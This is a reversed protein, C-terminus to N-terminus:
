VDEAAKTRMTDDRKWALLLIAVMSITTANCAIFFWDGGTAVVKQGSSWLGMRGGTVLIAIMGAACVSFALVRFYTEPRRLCIATGIAFMLVSALAIIALGTWDGISIAFAGLWAAAAFAGGGFRSIVGNRSLSNAATGTVPQAEVWTGDEVRMQKIRRGAWVCIPLWVCFFALMMLAPKFPSGGLVNVGLQYLVLIVGISLVLLGFGALLVRAMFRRERPSRSSNLQMKVGWASLMLKIIPLALIAGLGMGSSKAAAVGPGGVAGAVGAAATKPISLPLAALVAATFRTTPKSNTLTLEVMTAVEERLMKRGRSLRQKVTDTSLDLAGAVHQISQDERYFLILPERYTEPIQELSQWVLAEEEARIAEEAPSLEGSATEAVVELSTATSVPNRVQQRISQNILNRAIGCLWSKFKSLDRLSKLKQWAVVFTEQALDESKARNGLASYALSCILGQYRTVLQEYAARDGKGCLELLRIETSPNMDITLNM